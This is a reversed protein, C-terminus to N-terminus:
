QQATFELIKFQTLIERAWSQREAESLGLILM